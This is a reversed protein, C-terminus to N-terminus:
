WLGPILRYKVRDAYAGYGALDQQLAADELATRVVFGSAGIVAPIFAWLSGLAPPLAIAALITGAYGPHRIYGYPGRTEVSHGREDQIRAFTSFYRNCIVAWFGLLNGLIYLALALLQWDLAYDPSWEFRGVDMGAIVLTIPYFFLFSVAALRADRQDGDTRMRGREVVLDRDAFVISLASTTFYTGLVAWAMPWDLSGASAFLLTGLILLYVTTVLISRLM